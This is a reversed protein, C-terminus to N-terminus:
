CNILRGIDLMEKRALDSFLVCIHNENLESFKLFNFKRRNIRSVVSQFRFYSLCENIFEFSITKFIKILM